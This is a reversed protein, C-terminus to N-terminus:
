QAWCPDSSLPLLRRSSGCGFHLILLHRIDWCGLYLIFLLLEVLLLIACLGKLSVMGTQVAQRIPHVLDQEFLECFFVSFAGVRFRLGLLVLMLLQQDVSWMDPHTKKSIVDVPM